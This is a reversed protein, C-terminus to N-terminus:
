QRYKKSCARPCEFIPFIVQSNEFTFVAKLSRKTPLSEKSHARRLRHPYASQNNQDATALMMVSLITFLTNKYEISQIFVWERTTQKNTTEM